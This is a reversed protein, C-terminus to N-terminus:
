AMWFHAILSLAALAATESRLVQPGLSVAEFGRGLAQREEQLTWGGEPGVLLIVTPIHTKRSGPFKEMLIERLLKGRKESLIWKKEGDISELFSPFSQPPLIIPLSTRRSQKVAEGAIRQWRGVKNQEDGVRVVSRFALVPIISAVGLETSKQILWDMKKSKLIAQGLFLKIRQKEPERRELIILKTRERLVEQVEARYRVGNEDLLWVKKGPKARLVRSLHHHQDGELFAFPYRLLM